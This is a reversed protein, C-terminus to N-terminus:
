CSSSQHVAGNLRCPLSFLRGSIALLTCRVVKEAKSIDPIVDFEGFRDHRPPRAHARPLNHQVRCQQDPSRRNDQHAKEHTGRPPARVLLDADCALRLAVALWDDGVYGRIKMWTRRM